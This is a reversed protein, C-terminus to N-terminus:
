YVAVCRNFHWGGATAINLFQVYWRGRKISSSTVQRAKRVGAAPTRAVVGGSYYGLPNTQYHHMTNM